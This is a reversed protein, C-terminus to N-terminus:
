VSAWTCPGERLVRAHFRACFHPGLSSCVRLVCVYCVHTCVGSQNQSNEPGCRAGSAQQQQQQQQEIDVLLRVVQLQIHLCLHTRM